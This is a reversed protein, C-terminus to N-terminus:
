PKDRRPKFLSAARNKSESDTRNTAQSELFAQAALEMAVTSSSDPLGRRRRFEARVENVQDELEAESPIGPKSPAVDLTASRAQRGFRRLDADSMERLKARLEEINM